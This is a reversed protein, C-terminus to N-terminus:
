QFCTEVAAAAAAAAAEAKRLATAAWLTRPLNSISILEMRDVVSPPASQQAKTRRVRKDLSASAQLSM